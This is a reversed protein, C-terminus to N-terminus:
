NLSFSYAATTFSSGNWIGIAGSNIHFSYRGTSSGRVGLMTMNQGTGTAWTTPMAWFEVTGTSIDYASNAPAQVKDDIGDFSLAGSSWQIPSGVWGPAPSGTLTGDLGTNATSNYATAGAGENMKYYAILGATNTAVTGYMGAKIQAATRAVSWVRAEDVVGNLLRPNGSQSWNGIKFSTGAGPNSVGGSLSGGLTGVNVGNVYLAMSGSTSGDWSVAVHYWVGTTLNSAPYSIWAGNSADKMCYFSLNGGYILMEIGSSGISRSMIEQDTSLSSFKVWCEMTKINTADLLANSGCDLYNSNGPSFSLAYNQASVPLFSCALLGAVLIRTLTTKM